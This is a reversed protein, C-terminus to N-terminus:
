ARRFGLIEFQKRFGLSAYLQHAAVNGVDYEVTATQMGLARMRRLGELMAARALGRRRFAGLTAVPEFHGTRNLEDISIRALAAVQGDPAVVVVEREPGCAPKELVESRYSDATWDDGFADNRVPALGAADAFTATRVTFGDALAPEVIPEGLDREVVYDWLRYPEFGLRALRAIRREDCAWVDTIVSQDDGEVYEVTTDYASRLMALEDDSGRMSPSAFVDFARGFRGCIAIGVIVAGTEWVHALEALPRHGSRNEYMRHPIEGVHCYGCAGADHIWSSLARQVPLLDDDRYPRARLAM